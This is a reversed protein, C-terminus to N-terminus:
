INTEKRAVVIDQFAPGGKVTAWRGYLVPENIALGCKEYVSRIYTEEFAVAKEFEVKSVALCVSSTDVPYRFDQAAASRRTSDNLLFYTAL